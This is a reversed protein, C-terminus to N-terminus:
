EVKMITFMQRNLKTNIQLLYTGPLLNEGATIKGSVSEGQEILKGCFDFIAFSFNNESFLHIINQFPNPFATANIKKHENIGSCIDFRVNITDRKVCGFLNSVESFIIKTNM